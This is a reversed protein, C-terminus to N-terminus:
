LKSYDTIVTKDGLVVPSEVAASRGIGDPMQNMVNFTRVAAGTAVVDGAIEHGPIRPYATVRGPTAILNVVTLGIGCARVILHLADMGNAVGICHSTGCYDATCPNGDDCDTGGCAITVPRETNERLTLCPIGLYTTEEQIGGSDTLALRSQSVLNMFQIYGLPEVLRIAPQAELRPMLAFDVLRKRTRPHVAFVLPLHTATALLVDVLRGLETADDVNSPRHLTVVGYGKPQLRLRQRTDDAEIVGRLMEFSDLMINGIFDIREAPVGEAVRRLMKESKMEQAKSWIM